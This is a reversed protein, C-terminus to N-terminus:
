KLRNKIGGGFTITNLNRKSVIIIVGRATVCKVRIFLVPEYANVYFVFSHTQLYIDVVM